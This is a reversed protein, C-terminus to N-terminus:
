MHDSSSPRGVLRCFTGDLGASVSAGGGVAAVSSFLSSGRRISNRTRKGSSDSACISARKQASSASILRFSRCASIRRNYGDVESARIATRTVRSSCSRQLSRPSSIITSPGGYLLGDDAGSELEADADLGSGLGGTLVVSVGGALVSAGGASVSAGTMVVGFSVLLHTTHM